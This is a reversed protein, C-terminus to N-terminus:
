RKYEVLLEDPKDQTYWTILNSQVKAIDAWPSNPFETILKKYMDAAALMDASQLSNATQFLLWARDDSSSIDDPKNRRLAEKYFVAAEGIYNSSYLTNGIEYPSNIEEPKEMMKRLKQITPETVPEYLMKNANATREIPKPNENQLVNKEPQNSTAKEEGDLPEFIQSPLSLQMSNIQEILYQLEDKQVQEQQEKAPTINEQWLLKKVDEKGSAPNAREDQNLYYEIMNDSNASASGNIFSLLDFPLLMLCLAFIYIGFSIHGNQYKLNHKTTM